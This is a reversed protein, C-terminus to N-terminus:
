VTHFLEHFVTELRSCVARATRANNMVYLHVGPAGMAILDIIQYVAYNFGIEEMVAPHSAYIEIMNRFNLPITSGCMEKIRRINKPNVLPMIGPIIPSTIGIRRAENVLRYYYSNDYFIQTIFFSAGSEEKKKMNVLDDYLSACEAHGEPYCAAGLTFGYTALFAALDTAHAFYKCYEAEYGVPKDGRLCLVNEINRERLSRALSSVTEPSSPGGTIHALATVRAHNQIYDAIEVTNKSNSGGAGYTVSIFDPSFSTLADITALLKEKDEGDKKPPFVEFSLTRKSKIIEDIRM